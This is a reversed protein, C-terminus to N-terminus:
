EQVPLIRCVVLRDNGSDSIVLREGVVVLDAPSKLPMTLGAIPSGTAMLRGGRSSYVFIKGDARDIVWLRDSADVFIGSPEKMEPDAVMRTYNGYEDFVLIRKDGIDSVFYSGHTDVVIKGPNLLGGGSSGFEGVFKDFQGILSFVAIRNNDKDSVWVQGSKDVAAGAPSGFKLPDDLDSFPIEDVYQLRSDLRCIRRNGRDVIRINLPGDPAGAIPDIFLGGATGRGGAEIEPKLLSTFRVIRDNGADCVILSGNGDLFLGAPKRLPMGFLAGDIITDVVIAGPPIAEVAKLQNSPPHSCVSLLFLSAIVASWLRAM